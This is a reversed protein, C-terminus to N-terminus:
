SPARKTRIRKKNPHNTKSLYDQVADHRIKRARAMAEKMKLPATRETGVYISTTSQGPRCIFLRVERFSARRNTRHREQLYIGVEGHLSQKDQRETTKVRAAPGQYIEALYAKAAQLAKRPSPTDSKCTDSFLKFPKLYRVQWGHTSGPREKDIRVIHRPVNFPQKYGPILCVRTPLAKIPDLDPAEKRPPASAM